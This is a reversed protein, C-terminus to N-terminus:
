LSLLTPLVKQPTRNPERCAKERHSMSTLFFLTSSKRVLCGVHRYSLPLGWPSNHAAMKVKHRLHHSTFPPLSGKKGWAEVCACDWASGYQWIWNQFQALLNNTQCLTGTQIWNLCNLEDIVSSNQFWHYFWCGLWHSSIFENLYLHLCSFFKM